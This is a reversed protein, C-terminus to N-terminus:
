DSVVEILQLCNVRFNGDTNFPVVIGPAARWPILCKWIPANPYRKECWELTAVNVGCGCETGRDPNVVEMLWAGPEYKWTDPAAYEPSEMKYCIVGDTTFEFNATLWVSPDLLGICGSLDTRCLNAGCLNADCLNAGYLNANYLNAGFLNAGFLNAGSLDAYQLNADSLDADSLDAGSLDADSLDADSMDADSMDAYQLNADRLDADYLDAGTLAAGSLNASTLDAREGDPDDNVWARHRKLIEALEIETIKM